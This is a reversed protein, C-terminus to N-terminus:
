SCHAKATMLGRGTKISETISGVVLPTVVAAQPDCIHAPIAFRKLRAKRIFYAAEYITVVEHLAYDL